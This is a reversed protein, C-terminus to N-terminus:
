WSSLAGGNPKLFFHILTKFHCVGLWVIDHKVFWVQKREPLAPLVTVAM